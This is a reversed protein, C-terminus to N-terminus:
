TVPHARCGASRGSCACRTSMSPRPGGHDSRSSTRLPAPSTTVGTDTLKSALALLIMALACRLATRSLMLANLSKM